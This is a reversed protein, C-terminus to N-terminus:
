VDKVAFGYVKFHERYREALWVLLDLLKANESLPVIESRRHFELEDRSFFCVNVRTTLDERSPKM